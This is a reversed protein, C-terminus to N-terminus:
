FQRQADRVLGREAEEAAASDPFCRVVARFLHRSRDYIRREECRVAYKLLV